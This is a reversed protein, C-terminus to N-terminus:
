FSGLDKFDCTGRQSNLHRNWLPCLGRFPRSCVFWGANRHKEAAFPPAIGHELCYNTEIFKIVNDNLRKVPIQLLESIEVIDEGCECKLPHFWDVSAVRNCKQCVYLTMSSLIPIKAHVDREFASLQNQIDNSLSIIKKQVAYRADMAQKALHKEWDLLVPSFERVLYTTFGATGPMFTSLSPKDAPTIVWQSTPDYKGKMGLDVLQLIQKSNDLLGM